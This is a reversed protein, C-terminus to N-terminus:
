KNSVKPCLKGRVIKFQFLYTFVLLPYKKVFDNSLKAENETSDDNIKFILKGLDVLNTRIQDLHTTRGFIKKVFSSTINEDSLIPINLLIGKHQFPTSTSILFFFHAKIKDSFALDREGQNISKFLEITKPDKDVRNVEEATMVHIKSPDDMVIRLNEYQERDKTMSEMFRDGDKSSLAAIINSSSTNIRSLVESNSGSASMKNSIEGLRRSIESVNSTKGIDNLSRSLEEIKTLLATDSSNSNGSELNGLKRSIETIKELVRPDSTSPNGNVPCLGGIEDLKDYVKNVRELVEPDANCTISDKKRRADNLLLQHYIDM